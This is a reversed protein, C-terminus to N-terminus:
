ASRLSLWLEDVLSETGGFWNESTFLRSRVEPPPYLEAEDDDDVLGRELAVKNPTAFRLANANIAAIEPDLLFEIFRLALEPSRASVPIVMYDVWLVAGEDPIVYKLSPKKLQARFLDGSDIQAIWTEGAVLARAPNADYARLLEKQQALLPYVRERITPKDTSNIDMGAALLAQDFVDGKSDIVSIRGAYKPDFLAKWSKPAEVKESDYGIGTTGWLYPVAYITGDRQWPGITPDLNALGPLEARGLPRLSQKTVMRSIIYDIPFAVDYQAGGALKAVLEAEALFYDQTVRAGTAAQFRALVEPALYDGWNYLTLAQGPSCAFASAGAALLRGISRRSIGRV